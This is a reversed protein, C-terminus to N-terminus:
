KASEQPTHTKLRQEQVIKAKLEEIIGASVWFVDQNYDPTWRTFFLHKGDPSLGPSSEQGRTNIPEGMNIPESWTDENIDRFSIYLDGHDDLSGLRNLWWFVENGDPSFGLASHEMYITSVIGLAFVVPTDGPPTQGLYDGYLDTLKQADQAYGSQPATILYIFLIFTKM